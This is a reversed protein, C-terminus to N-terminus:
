KSQFHQKRDVELLFFLFIFTEILFANKIVQLLHTPLILIDWDKKALLSRNKDKDNQHLWVDAARSGVLVGQIKLGLTKDSEEERREIQTTLFDKVAELGDLINKKNKKKGEKGQKNGM